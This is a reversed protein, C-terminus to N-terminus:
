RAVASSGSGMATSRRSWTWRWGRRGGRCHSAEAAMGTSNHIVIRDGIRETRVVFGSPRYPRLGVVTRIEREASVRVPPLGCGAPALDGPVLDVVRTHRCGAVAAAAASAAASKLFLRRNM